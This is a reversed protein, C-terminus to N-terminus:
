NGIRGPTLLGSPHPRPEWHGVAHYLHGSLFILLDGPAYALKLKLDPLYMPGDDYSGCNFAATPGVDSADMHPQVQLKWVIARGLWPGPDETWWVGAKFAQMYEQYYDPFAVKFAEQLMGALNQTGIYYRRVAMAAHTGHVMDKSPTLTGNPHGQQHWSHLLHSVGAREHKIAPNHNEVGPRGHDGEFLSYAMVDEQEPHRRDKPDMRPPLYSHLTQALIHNRELANAQSLPIRHSYINEAAEVVAKSRGKVGPYFPAKKCRTQITEPSEPNDPLLIMRSFACLLIKGDRDGWVGSCADPKLTRMDRITQQAKEKDEPKNRPREALEEWNQDVRYVPVTRAWHAVKEKADQRFLALQEEAPLDECGEMIPPLTLIQSPHPVPAEAPAPRQRLPVDSSGRKRKLQAM